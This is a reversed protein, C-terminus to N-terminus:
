NVNLFNTDRLPIPWRDKSFIRNDDEEANMRHHFGQSSRYNSKKVKQSIDFYFRALVNTDSLIDVKTGKDKKFFKLKCQM